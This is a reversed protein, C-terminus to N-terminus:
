VTVAGEPMRDAREPWEVLTVVQEDRFLGLEEVEDPAGLRYLDVHQVPPTTAYSQVLTFTPSPVEMWPDGALARIFARALTTKGSGLDGELLLVDGARAAGALDQGLLTTAREDPLARELVTPPM